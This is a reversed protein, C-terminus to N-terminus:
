VSCVVQYNFDPEKSARQLGMITLNAPREATQFFCLDRCSPTRWSPDRGCIVDM